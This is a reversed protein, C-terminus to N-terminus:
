CATYEVPKAKPFLTFFYVINLIDVILFYMFFELNRAGRSRRLCKLFITSFYIGFLFIGVTPFGISVIISVILVVLTKDNEWLKCYMYRNLLHQRYLVGRNYFISKDLVMKWMRSPDHYHIMHHFVIPFQFRHFKFSLSALRLGLDGDEGTKFKTKMGGVKRWVEKKILFAGGDLIQPCLLSGTRNKFRTAIEIGEEMDIVVGSIADYNKLADNQIVDALFQKNIAMDADMFFFLEGQAELGGVNRGIAANTYKRIQYTKVENFKKVISLSRDTSRSDVYILEYSKIKNAHIADYISTFCRDINNEENRGIVIFSIM